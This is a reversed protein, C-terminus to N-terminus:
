CAGQRHQLRCLEPRPQLAHQAIYGLKTGLNAMDTSSWFWLWYNVLATMTDCTAGPRLTAKRVGVYSWMVLPWALPNAANLLDGTLHAPDDGNNGFSLGKELMAYQVSGESFQVIVGSRNLSALPVLGQADGAAAYGMTYLNRSVYAIGGVMSSYLIPQVLGGWNAAPVFTPDAAALVKKLLQTVGTTDPRSILIISQNAPVNWSTFNPNTAQIDPHDWTTIRGSWIKALIQTTLVLDGIGNLNYIPVVPYACVPYLQLDPYQEYMTPTPINLISAYDLYLPPLIDTAGCEATHNLLRCLAGDSLIAGSFTAGVSPDVFRYDFLAEQIFQM